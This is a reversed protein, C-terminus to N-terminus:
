HQRFYRSSPPAPRRKQWYSAPAKRFGRQLADHGCVRVLLGVPTLVLYYISTLLVSSVVVGIPYTAYSLGVFLLRLGERWVLGLLPVAGALGWCIEAVFPRHRHWQVLGAAGVFVLWAAAFVLLQNRSPHKNLRLLSM